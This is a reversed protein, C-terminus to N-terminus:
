LRSVISRVVSLVVFVLIFSLDIGVGGFRLPPLLRRVPALVPETVAYLGQTARARISGHAPPGALLGAWDVVLRALLVLQALGLIAGLTSGVVTM